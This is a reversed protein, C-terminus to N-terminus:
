KKTPFFSLGIMGVIISVGVILVDTQGRFMSALAPGPCFGGMGWGMGFLIAGLILKKDIRKGTPILFKDTLLPHKMKSIMKFTFFHVGIAGGMVLSLSPDWNGFFDLFGIVKEPNTMGSIELGFGFLTATVIVPILQKVLKTDM